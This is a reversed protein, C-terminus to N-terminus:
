SPIEVEKCTDLTPGQHLRAQSNPEARHLCPLNFCDPRSLAAGPLLVIVLWLSNHWLRATRVSLRLSSTMDVPTPFEPSVSLSASPGLFFTLTFVWNIQTRTFKKMSFLRTEGHGNRKLTEKLRETRLITALEPQTVLYYSGNLTPFGPMNLAPLIYSNQGSLPSHRLASM